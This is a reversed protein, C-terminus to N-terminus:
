MSDDKSRFIRPPKQAVIGNDSLVEWEHLINLTAENLREGGDTALSIAIAAWVSKPIADFVGVDLCGVYPNSINGLHM